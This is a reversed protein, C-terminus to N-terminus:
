SRNHLITMEQASKGQIALRKNREEKELIGARKEEEFSFGKLYCSSLLFGTHKM